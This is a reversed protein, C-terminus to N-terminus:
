KNRYETPSVGMRRKFMKSFVLPDRYGVSYAVNGIPVDRNKLLECAKKMRYDVIYGQVSKGSTAKFLSFLYKRSIGIHESISEVSLDEHFHSKIYRVAARFYVNEAKKATTKSELIISMLEYLLSTFHLRDSLDDGCETPM